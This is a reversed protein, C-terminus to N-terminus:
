VTPLLNDAIEHGRSILLNLQKHEGSWGHVGGFSNRPDVRKCGASTGREIMSPGIAM